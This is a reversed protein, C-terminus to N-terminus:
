NIQFLAVGHRHVYVGPVVVDVAYLGFTTKTAVDHLGSDTEVCVHGGSRFELSTPGAEFIPACTAIIFQVGHSSARVGLTVVFGRFSSEVHTRRLDADVRSIRARGGGRFGPEAQNNRNITLKVDVISQVHIIAVLTRRIVTRQSNGPGHVELLAVPGRHSNVRPRVGIISHLGLTTEATVLKHRSVFAVRFRWCRLGRCRLGLWGLWFGGLWFDRITRSGDWGSPRRSESPPLRNRV